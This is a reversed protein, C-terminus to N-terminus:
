PTVLSGNQFITDIVSEDIGFERLIELSHEGLLPTPKLEPVPLDPFQILNYSFSYESGDDLVSKSIMDNQIAQEDKFFELEYATISEACPIGNSLMQELWYRSSHLKIAEELRDRICM